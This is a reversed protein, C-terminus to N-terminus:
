RLEAVRDLTRTAFSRTRCRDVLVSGVDFGLALLEASPGEGLCLGAALASLAPVTQIGYGGVGAYWAFGPTTPDLGVVPSRDPLFTRLGAWNTKLREVRFRTAQEFRDIAVAVDLDEAWADCPESPTEDCPSVMLGGSEPKIFLQEDVTGVYPTHSVDESPMVMAVTRRLPRLGIPEVGALRAVDDAWAGAADVLMPTVITRGDSFVLLWEGRRRKAASLRCNRAVIGSRRRLGALYAAHIAHVDLDFASPEWLGAVFRDPALYPALELCDAGDILAAEAVLKRVEGFRTELRGRMEQDALILAGRPSSLPAESFRPDPERLTRSSLKTLARITANGYSEMSIAASRGTTHYALQSEMEALLVSGHAALEHAIAVGTIGGGIVVFDFSNPM